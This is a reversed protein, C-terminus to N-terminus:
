IDSRLKKLHHHKIQQEPFKEDGVVNLMLILEDAFDATAESKRFQIFLASKSAHEGINHPYTISEIYDGM